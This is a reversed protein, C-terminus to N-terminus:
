GYGNKVLAACKSSACQCGSKPLLATPSARVQMVRGGRGAGESCFTVWGQRHAQATFLDPSYFGEGLDTHGWLLEALVLQLPASYLRVGTGWLQAAAAGPISGPHFGAGEATPNIFELASQKISAIQPL